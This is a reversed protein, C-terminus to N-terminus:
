ETRTPQLYYPDPLSLELEAYWPHDTVPRVIVMDDAFTVEMFGYRSAVERVKDENHKFPGHELEVLRVELTARRFLEYSARSVVVDRLAYRAYGLTNKTEETVPLNGLIKLAELTKVIADENDLPQKLDLELVRGFSRLRAASFNAFARITRPTAPEEAFENSFVWNESDVLWAAEALVASDLSFRFGGLADLVRRVEPAGWGEEGAVTLLFDFVSSRASEEIMVALLKDLPWVISRLLRALTELEDLAQAHMGQLRLAEVRALSWNNITLASVSGDPLAGPGDSAGVVAEGAVAERLYGPLAASAELGHERDAEMTRPTYGLTPLERFRLVWGEHSSNLEKLLSAAKVLEPSAQRLEEARQQAESIRPHKALLEDAHRQVHATAQEESMGRSCATTLLVATLLVLVRQM